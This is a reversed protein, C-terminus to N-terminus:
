TVIYELKRSTKLQLHELRDSQERRSSTLSIETYVERTREVACNRTIDRPVTFNTIWLKHHKKNIGARRDTVENQLTAKQKQRTHTDCAM